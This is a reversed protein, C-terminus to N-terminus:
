VSSDFEQLTNRVSQSVIFVVVLTSILGVISLLLSGFDERNTLIERFEAIDSALSGLGCFVITGPLIGILGLTFDRFSVESVGYVFNLLSFPFAPSLRTFFILKLGEQSVSKQIAELKPFNAIRKQTWSRFIKRGLFFSIEAGLFAGILVVFTGDLPGYLFGAFMSPWLGPLLFTVWVAYFCVFTVVGFSTDFFQFYNAVLHKLEIM